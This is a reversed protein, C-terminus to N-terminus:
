THSARPRVARGRGPADHAVQGAWLLLPVQLPLRLYTVWREGATDAHVASTLNGPFVVVFLVLSAWGGIRRTGPVAVLLGCVVEAVGSVLTWSRPSGLFGPILDDYPEPHWFHNAGAAVLLLALL